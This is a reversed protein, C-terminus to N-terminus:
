PCASGRVTRIVDRLRAIGPPIADTSIAGFGLRIFSKDPSPQAFHVDGVEVVVGHKLAEEQVLRSSVGPPLKLWIASGGSTMTPRCDPLEIEIQRLLMAWRTALMEQQRRIHGDYHGDALFIAMARQDLASPHRYILRRLARAERVVDPPAVLFGLRLGPFVPKSLSGIHLVRDSRDYGKLAHQRAGIHNLEHEYDDEVILFDERDAADLLALRRQMTMTVNTPAQHSPTVHVLSLGSLSEGTRLGHGDIPLPVIEAGELAFINRADAYGPEEVGVRVGPGSFLRALIYLANQSGNTILIEDPGARFGRRPLIRRMIQEVLEADDADVLDSMWSKLHENRSAQRISERWRSVSIPDVAVQGYVFPYPHRRWDAPKTINAQQSPRIRLRGAMDAAASPLPSQPALRTARSKLAAPRRLFGEDVFFGRRGVSVLYGDEAMREYVLTVTNRSIGLQRALSRTAPLPDHPPLIGALIAEVIREQLQKQLPREVDLPTTLLSNHM